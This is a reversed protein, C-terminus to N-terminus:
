FFRRLLSLLVSLVVSILLMSVIPFYVRTNGSEIRVDGPLRGFWGLGGLWIVAGLVVILVGLSIVLAGISRSDM